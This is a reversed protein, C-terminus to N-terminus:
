AESEFMMKISQQLDRNPRWGCHGEIKRFDGVMVSVDAQGRIRTPDREWSVKAGSAKIMDELLSGIRVGDGSCVNFVEGPAPCLCLAWIAEAFDDVDVFDRTSDLNGVYIMERGAAIAETLKAAFAGPALRPSIGKGLLQFPRVISVQVGYARFYHLAIETAVLKSLGYPSAPFCPMSEVIPMLDESAVGYEAASGAAVVVAHPSHKRVAEMLATMSLINTRFIEQTDRAGFVGALHVIYDPATRKVVEAVANGDSVDAMCFWDCNQHSPEVVDVGYVRPRDPQAGILACVHRGAFGSAGTILVSLAM